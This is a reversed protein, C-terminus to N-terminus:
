SRRCSTRATSLSPPVPLHSPVWTTAFTLVEGASVDFEDRHHGDVARPLRTGRLVLMDPGAVATIVQLNGGVLDEVQRSVWPRTAGYGFRVVWEHTMAVTGELGEVIRLLDARRDEVPM